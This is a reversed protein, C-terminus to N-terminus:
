DDELLILVRQDLSLGDHERRGCVKVWGYWFEGRSDVVILLLEIADEKVDSNVLGAVRNSVVYGEDFWSFAGGGEEVSDVGDKRIVREFAPSCDRSVLILLREMDDMDGRGIQGGEKAAGRERDRM